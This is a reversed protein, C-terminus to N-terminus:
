GGGGVVGGEVRDIDEEKQAEGPDKGTKEHLRIYGDSQSRDTNIFILQRPSAKWCNDQEFLVLPPMDPSGSGSVSDPTRLMVQSTEAQSDKRQLPLNTLINDRDRKQIGRRLDLFM